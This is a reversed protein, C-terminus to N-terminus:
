TKPAGTTGSAITVIERWGEAKHHIAEDPAVLRTLSRASGEHWVLQPGKELLKALDAESLRAPSVLLVRDGIEIAEIRLLHEDRPLRGQQVYRHSPNVKHIQITLDDAHWLRRVGAVTRPVPRVIVGGQRPSPRQRNPEIRVHGPLRLLAALPPMRLYEGIARDLGAQRQFDQEAQRESLGDPQHRAQDFHCPEVPGHRVIRRQASTLSPDLHLDRISARTLWQVEQNVAGADAKTAITLPQGALVTRRTPALPPLNMQGHIRGGAVNAREFESGASM